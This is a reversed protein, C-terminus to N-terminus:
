TPPQGFPNLDAEGNAHYVAAENEQPGASADAAGAKEKGAM